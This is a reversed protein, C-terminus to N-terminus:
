AASQRLVAVGDPGLSVGRPGPTIEGFGLLVEAPGETPFERVEPELNVLVRFGGRHMVLWAPGTEVRVTRLDDERLDPERRRLAILDRHWALLRGHLPELTSVPERWDLV